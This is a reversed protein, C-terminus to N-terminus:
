RPRTRSANSSRTMSSLLRLAAGVRRRRARWSTASSRHHLQQDLRLAVQAVPEEVVGLPQKTLDGLGVRLARDRRDPEGPPLERAPRAAAVRLASRCGREDGRAERGTTRGSVGATLSSRFRATSGGGNAQLCQHAYEDGTPSAVDPGYRDVGEDRGAVIDDGEVVERGAM